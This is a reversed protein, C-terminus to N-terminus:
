STVARSIEVDWALSHREPGDLFPSMGARWTAISPDDSLAVRAATRQYLELRHAVLPESQAPNPTLEGIPAPASVTVWNPRDRNAPGDLRPVLDNIHEISLVQVDDPIAISAVPSGTTLVHSVTFERRVTPDAALEAAILGGQSHGVLMVPEARGVGVARMAEIVGSMGASRKGAMLQVDGTLDFPTRAPTASWDATGPVSVVWRRLGDPGDIREVHIQGAAPAVPIRGVLEGVDAAPRVSHEPLARVRVAGQERLWARGDIVSGAVGALVGLDTAVDAVTLPRGYRGSAISVLQGGPLADTTGRFVGVMAPVLRETLDAHDALLRLTLGGLRRIAEPLRGSRDPLEGGVVVVAIAGILLGPVAPAVLSGLAYGASAVAVDLSRAVAADAERYAEAALKLGGGLVEVRAALRLLGGSGTSAAGLAQEAQAFTRPSLVGTVQLGPNVAVAVVARGHDALEAAVSRL